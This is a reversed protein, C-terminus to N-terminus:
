GQQQGVLYIAPHRRPQGDLVRPRRRFEPGCIGLTQIHHAGDPLLAAQNEFLTSKTIQIINSGDGDMRFLNAGIDQSCMNFKPERTSSFVIGGDPLYIPDFDSVDAASTLQKLGSGDANIEFIHLNEKATRRMAFLIKKADFHVCPSRVTGQPTEVLTRIAGSAVDLMKLAGGPAFKGDTAEGVQFLTDIAHYIAAYQPRAVFVLPQGSVLPNALLARRQLDALQAPLATKDAADDAATKQLEDLEQLFASGGPYREGFTTRLDEVASRLAELPVASGAGGQPTLVRKRKAFHESSAQADLRGSAAVDDLTVHGWGGSSGDVVRLFVKQGVLTPLNWQIRSMVESGKGRAQIHEKGDLTCLAVYTDQAGGGGILFSVQPADLTFVPSEIVGRQVDATAGNAGEVTSLHAKGQRSAYVGKNHYEPRDTVVRAFQGEVVKWGQLDGTEFDFCLQGAPPAAPEAGRATPAIGLAAALIAAGTAQRFILKIM